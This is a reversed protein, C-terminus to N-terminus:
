KKKISKYAMLYHKYFHQWSAREALEWSAERLAKATGLKGESLRTIHQAIAEAIDGANHDTRALVAVPIGKDTAESNGSLEDEAWLGFGAYRTTVTPVGCAISELPTYGWPEYYSPYVTMDMGCLLEYYTMDVIGDQGTLYVPIHIINVQEDVKDLGLYHLHCQTADEEMNHLWHTLSPHQLPTNQQLESRGLLYQLDARPEAVWAPVLIFAVIRKKGKYSARLRAVSEVYLDIGKNRYEYRGGLSLFIDKDNISLGTLRSAISALRQRAAKRTSMYRKGKPVLENEFGNPLVIPTRELLQTCEMATLKSVTAFLDSAHAAKKEVAHKAVVGLEGAMQDGNYNPLHAYLEKGNGAISRGVTTAHTIFLTAIEPQLSKSYLLGMATQWENYICLVSGRRPRLSKILSHMVRTAAISFLCSEDYDGYGKDSELGYDRWMDFYLEGKEAWLPSFDVLVVAPRGPIDWEGVVTRLGLKNQEEAIWPALLSPTTPVFDQPLIDFLPGVFVVRGEHALMMERARSSLVTYIGGMKNCVEWSTEIITM